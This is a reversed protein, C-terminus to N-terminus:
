TRHVKYWVFAALAILLLEVIFVALVSTASMVALLVPSRDDNEQRASFLIMAAGILGVIVFPRWRHWQQLAHIARQDGLRAFHEGYFPYEILHFTFASILVVALPLRCRRWGIKRTWFQM